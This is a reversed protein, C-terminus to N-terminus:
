EKDFPLRTICKLFLFGAVPGKRDLLARRLKDFVEQAVLEVM